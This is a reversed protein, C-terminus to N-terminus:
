QKIFEKKRKLLQDGKWKELVYWQTSGSYQVLYKNAQKDYAIRLFDSGSSIQAMIKKTAAHASDLFDDANLQSFSSVVSSVTSAQATDKGVMWTGNQLLISFVTDGYQYNLEHINEQPIKLITKDRWEKLTKVFLQSINADVLLVNQEGERRVYTDTYGVGPKGVFFATIMKGNETILVKTSSSDVQFLSQKEPNSSVINKVILNKMTSIISTVAQQDAKSRMPELLYWEGGQKQIIFNSSSSHVTIGDVAMSDMSVFKEADDMTLNQEGERQIVLYAVAVLLLLIGFLSLYNKKM